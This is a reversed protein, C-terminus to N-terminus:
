KPTPRPSLLQHGEEQLQHKLALYNEVIGNHVVVIDGHCDRHPHANEETPRGHTAWRTHGIGYSGGHSEAAARRGSQAAQGARPAGGPLRGDELVALGASDYGRYELRKLGDLIIPVAKAPGIYGVIGCM